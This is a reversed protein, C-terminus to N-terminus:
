KTEFSVEDLGFRGSQDPILQQLGLALAAGSADSDSSSPRDLLLFSLVDQESLAPRSFPETKVHKASGTLRLGITYQRGEYVSERSVQINILPDDLPGIFTLEGRDVRLERGYGTLFGDRVRVTGSARLDGGKQQRLRLGGELRSNLGFGSFRVDDGLLVEVDVTVITEQQQEVAREPTHVIVDTSRAVANKPLDRIQASASPIMVSGSIDFVGGGIHLRLDTSTDVSLDPVRVIALNEGQIRIEAVLDTNETAHVEGLITASGDGSRLGGTLRLKDTGDSNAAINIDSFTIGAGLLGLTGNALNAGGTFVPDGLTGAADLDVTLEGDLEGPNVARQILPRLLGVNPLRGNAAAQLPSEPALPGNVNATATMNLGQEGSLNVVLTTQADNSLLDVRVEDLVTRFENIDDAYGLATRSQRWHMEGQLGKTNRVLRIDADVTGDIIYGEALLPQLSELAFDNIVIASQLSETDWDSADMCISADHQKWCHAGVQGGAASIRLEPKQELRWSDFGEPQVQGYEFRQTYYEGDWGSNARLEVDVVGGRLNLKSQHEDLTGAMSLDLNGLQQESSVLGTAALKAALQNNGQLEAKLAFTDLSQTGYAVDKANATINAQPQELSGGLKISADLKGELGPWLMSLEPAHTNIVGALQKDMKVDATLQNTGANVTADISAPKGDHWQVRGLGTLDKGAIQANVTTVEIAFADTSQILLNSDFELRGPLENNILGTDIQKGNITLQGQLDKSYDIQGSGTIRGDFVDLSYANITVGQLDAFAQLQMAAEPWGKLLVKNSGDIHASVFDSNITINGKNSHLVTEGPLRVSDWDAKGELRPGTFLDFIFGNFNVVEPLNIVSTFALKDINGSFSGTGNINEAPMEWSADVQLRGPDPGALKGSAKLKVGAIQAAATEIDLRGHGITGAVSLNEFEAEDIRLKDLQGSEIYIHIPIKLWFLEDNISDRSTDDAAKDGSQNSPDDTSELIDISLEAIRASNIDVIGALLSAPTWSVVIEKARIEALPLAIFLSEVGLGEALTGTIGNAEIKVPSIGLGQELLWRSGQETRVLWALTISLIVTTLLAVLATIKFARM